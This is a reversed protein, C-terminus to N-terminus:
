YSFKRQCGEFYTDGPNSVGLKIDLWNIVPCNKDECDEFCGLWFWLHLFIDYVRSFCMINLAHKDVEVSYITTAPYNETKPATRDICQLIHVLTGPRWGSSALLVREWTHCVFINGSMTWLGQHTSIPLTFISGTSSWLSLPM